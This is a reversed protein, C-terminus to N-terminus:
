EDQTPTAPAPTEATDEGSRVVQLMSRSPTGCCCDPKRATKEPTGADDGTQCGALAISMVLAALLAFGNGFNCRSM